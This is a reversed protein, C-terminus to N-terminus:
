IDFFWELRCICQRGLERYVPTPTGLQTHTARVDHSYETSLMRWQTMYSIGYAMGTPPQRHSSGNWVIEGASSLSFDTGNTYRNGARDIIPLDVTFAPFRLSDTGDADGKLVSESLPSSTELFTLRDYFGIKNRSHTTVKYSGIQYNGDPELSSDRGLATMAAVIQTPNVWIFHKNKCLPCNLDGADDTRKTSVNCPCNIAREWIVNYGRETIFKDFADPWLDTRPMVFKSGGTQYPVYITQSPLSETTDITTITYYNEITGDFTIDTYTYGTVPTPNIPLGYGVTASSRKYINYGTAGPMPYWNLVLQGVSNISFTIGLPPQAM